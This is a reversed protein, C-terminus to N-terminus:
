SVGCAHKIKQGLARANEQSWGRSLHSVPIISGSLGKSQIHKVADVGHAIVVRPKVRDLLFDFPETIRKDAVLEAAQETPLAYLNTELCRIPSAGDIIWEIVRRTSSIANRRTRGPKLPRLQREKKYTELWLAKDFGYGKRWFQWFDKDVTTAPNFGVIFAQCNLPSGECVFPRLDTPKGILALLEREFEDLAEM